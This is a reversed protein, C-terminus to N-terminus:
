KERILLAFINFRPFDGVEANLSRSKFEALMQTTQLLQVEYDKTAQKLEHDKAIFM